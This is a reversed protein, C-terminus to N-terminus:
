NNRRLLQNDWIKSCDEAAGARIGTYCEHLECPPLLLYSSLLSSNIWKMLRFSYNTHPPSPFAFMHSQSTRLGMRFPQTTAAQKGCSFDRAQDEENQQPTEEGM